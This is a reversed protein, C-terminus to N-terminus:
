KLGVLEPNVHINGVVELFGLIVTDFATEFKPYVEIFKGTEEDYGVCRSGGDIDRLIDGEFIANGKIDKMGTLQGITEPIIEFNSGTEQQRIYPTGDAFHCLDGYVWENSLASGDKVHKARFLIKRM